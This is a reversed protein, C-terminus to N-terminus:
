DLIFLFTVFTEQCIIHVFGDLPVGLRQVLVRAVWYHVAVPCLSVFLFLLELQHVVVADVCYLKVVAIVLCIKPVSLSAELQGLGLVLFIKIHDFLPEFSHLFGDHNNLLDLWTIGIKRLFFLELILNFLLNQPALLDFPKFL